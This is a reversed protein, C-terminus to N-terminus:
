PGVGRPAAQVTVETTSARATRVASPGPYSVIELMRRPRPRRQPLAEPAPRTSGVGAVSRPASFMVATDWLARRRRAVAALLRTASTGTSSARSPLCRRHVARRADRGFQRPAGHDAM